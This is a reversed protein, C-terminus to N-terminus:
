SGDYDPLEIRDGFQQRVALDALWRFHLLKMALNGLRLRLRSRPAFAGAFGRAKRQKDEVFPRFRQQYAAFAHAPEQRHLEGALIYAAVMALGSGEGALLSPCSAADGVLTVRGVSWDHPIEIQSVRDMYLHEAEDLEKLIEPCEWGTREFRAKVLGKQAALDAPVHGSPHAFTFLFMSRDDRLTFRGVQQGVQPYLLYTLEDRPRYGTAEFAVVLIGLYREFQEEPGFVLERVRSHLGDAGVVIDYAECKGQEFTVLTSDERQELQAISDGFRTEVRDGLARFIASALEGRPLSTMHGQLPRRFADVPFGSVTRGRRDVIRVTHVRYGLGEVADRLGMRTAIEYGAGWFDIVYGGTRLRPAKEVLTVHHGYHNLWWALTPGAIGAGCILVRL